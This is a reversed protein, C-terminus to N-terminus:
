KLLLKITQDCVMKKFTKCIFLLFILGVFGYFAAVVFFGYYINDLLESLWLALGLNVFFWFSVVIWITVSHTVMSSIVESTKDVAKLKLLEVNTKGYDVARGLLTEILEENEDM